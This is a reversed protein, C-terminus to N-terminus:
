YLPSLFFSVVYRGQFFRGRPRRLYLLASRVLRVCRSSVVAGVDDDTAEGADSSPTWPVNSRLEHLLRRRQVPNLRVRAVHACDHPLRRQLGRRAVHILQRVVVVLSYRALVVDVFWRQLVYSCVACFLRSSASRRQVSVNNAVYRSTQIRWNIIVMLKSTWTVNIDRQRSVQRWLM